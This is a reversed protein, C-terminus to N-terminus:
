ESTDDPKSYPQVLPRAELARGIQRQREDLERMSMASLIRVDGTIVLGHQTWTIRMADEKHGGPRQVCFPGPTPAPQYFGEGETLHLRLYSEALSRRRLATPHSHGRSPVPLSTALPREAAGDHPALNHEIPNARM